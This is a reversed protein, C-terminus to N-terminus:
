LNQTQEFKKRKSDLFSEIKLKKLTHLSVAHLNSKLSRLSLHNNHSNKKCCCCKEFPFCKIMMSFILGSFGIIVSWIWGELELGGKSVNFARYCFTVLVFQLVIIISLIILFLKSRSIGEFINCEDKLKRANIFNFIQFMVFINFIYTFHVSPDLKPSINKYEEKGTQINYYRGSM